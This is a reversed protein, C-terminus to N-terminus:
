VWGGWVWFGQKRGKEGQGTDQGRDGEGLVGGKWDWM